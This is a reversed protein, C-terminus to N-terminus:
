TAVAEIISVPSRTRIVNNMDFGTEKLIISLDDLSREKGGFMTLMLLDIYIRMFKSEKINEITYELLVLKSGPTMAKRCNKLITKAKDDSWDHLILKLIYLDGGEPVSTFFDGGVLSLNDEQRQTIKEIVSPMDFLTVKINPHLERISNVFLGTGGGVDVIHNYPSFDYDAHIAPIYSTTLEEMASDFLLAAGKDKKLYKFFDGEYKPHLSKGGSKVSDSLRSLSDMWYTGMILSQNHLGGERTLKLGLKSLSYGDDSLNVVEIFLLGRLLRSLAERDLSLDTSLQDITKQGTNIYEFIGLEQATILIQTVSHGSISKLLRMEVPMLKKLLNDLKEIVWLLSKYIPWPPVGTTKNGM